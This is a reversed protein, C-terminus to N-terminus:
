QCGNVAVFDAPSLGECNDAPTKFTDALASWMIMLSAIIYIAARWRSLLSKPKPYTLRVWWRRHGKYRPESTDALVLIVIATAALAGGIGPNGFVAAVIAGLEIGLSLWILLPEFRYGLRAWWPMLHTWSKGFKQLSRVFREELEGSQVLPQRLRPDGDVRRMLKLFVAGDSNVIKKFRKWDGVEAASEFKSIQDFQRKLDDDHHLEVEYRDALKTNEPSHISM